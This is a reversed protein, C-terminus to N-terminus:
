PPPNGPPWGPPVGGKGSTPPDGSANPMTVAGLFVRGPNTSSTAAAAPDTGAVFQVNGGVQTPDDYYLQYTVGYALPYVTAGNVTVTHDLYVRQHTNVVIEATTADIGTATVILGSPYSISTLTRTLTDVQATLGAITNAQDQAVSQLAKFQEGQQRIYMPHAPTGDLTVPLSQNLPPFQLIPAGTLLTQTM